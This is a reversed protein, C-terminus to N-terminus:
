AVSAMIAIASAAGFAAQFTSALQCMLLAKASQFLNILDTAAYQVESSAALLIVYADVIPSNAEVHYDHNEPDIFEPDDDINGEGAYAGEINSYTIEITGHVQDDANATNQGIVTNKVISATATGLAAIGGGSGSLSSNEYIM